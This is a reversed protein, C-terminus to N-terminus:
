FQKKCYSTCSFGPIIFKAVGIFIDAGISRLYIIKGSLFYIVALKVNLM